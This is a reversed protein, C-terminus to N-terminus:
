QLRNHESATSALMKRACKRGIMENWTDVSEDDSLSQTAGATAVAVAVIANRVAPFMFTTITDGERANLVEDADTGSEKDNM